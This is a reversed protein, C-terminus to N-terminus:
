KNIMSFEIEIKESHAYIYAEVCYPYASCATGDDWKWSGTLKSLGFWAWTSAGGAVLAAEANDRDETAITALSTGIENECYTKADERLSKRPGVM